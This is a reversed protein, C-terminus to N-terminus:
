RVLNFTFYIPMSYHQFYVRPTGGDIWGVTTVPVRSVYGFAIVFDGAHPVTPCPHVRVGVTYSTSTEELKELTIPLGFSSLSPIYYFAPSGVPRVAGDTPPEISAPLFERTGYVYIWGSAGLYVSIRRPISVTVSVRTLELTLAEEYAMGSFQINRVVVRYTGPTPTPSLVTSVGPGVSDWFRTPNYGGGGRPDRSLEAALQVGNVTYTLVESTSGDVMYYTWPGFVMVDVNSAYAPKGHTPWTVRLGLARTGTPVYVKFVRWDGSEYRWTYDFAGRLYTNRYPTLETRPILRFTPTYYTMNVPVFYSVPVLYRLGRATEEVVVYGSYFGPNVGTAVVTFRALGRSTLTSPSVTVDRWTTLAYTLVRARIPLSGRFTAGSVGIRVVLAKTMGETSIGMLRATLYEIEEIQKALNGIQIRVYNARRIDYYIRGTETWSFAGDRNTDIWYALELVTTPILVSFTGTRGGSEFHEFPFTVEIEFLGAALLPRPDIALHGYVTAATVSLTVSEGVCSTIVTPEFRTLVLDCLPRVSTRSHTVAYARFTGAGEITVTRSELAGPRVHPIYIKPEYWTLAGLSSHTISGYTEALDATIDQPLSTSYVRPVSPDLVATVARYADVFGTGQSLQDFGMDYATNMLVTKLLHSPMRSGHVSKYASVVLAGVGAVMPTAQSTGSFLAHTVTGRLTRAGLAEWTRGVAWAFAGVAVVDPKVVGLETPGRNSWSVVQRSAGPVTYGYIPRYAFETAAGVGISFTSSAPSAITGWGPGGNGVAVFHPVGTVTTTYDFVISSPDMGSAWGWLAWGSTGYSNSTADVRPTGTYAWEWAYGEFAIWPNTRLAPWLYRSGEGYPTAMDFGTYFYIATITTGFYLAPAAAIKAAPAQGSMSRVGYGTQAYYDRGAATTACFTGHNGYDYQLVVYSGYPDVGPWVMAVPEYEWLEYLLLADTRYGHGHPLPTVLERWAGGLEYFIAYAADYVYGALTGISFDRVGDGDLDRALVERGYRLPEEGAFSYDPATPAGPITVLCPSPALALRLLYLVTTTDVYVTDYYGDGDSDVVLVPATFRIATSVGGVSASVYYMMLGFRPTGFRPIDGVHWLYGSPWPVYASFSRCGSVSVWLGQSWKFVYYPPYFVYLGTPDVRVYGGGVEEAGVPTLVLGLSSVDFVLPLGSDDRAVAGLGLAPSGYDVGTDIIAISVGEGRIGYKLWVDIARTINVTYHYSGGSGGTSSLEGSAVVGLEAFARTSRIFVPDMRMDPLIALVGPLRSLADLDERTIVVNVLKYLHTPYSGLFGRVKGRLISTPASRELVLIARAVQANSNLVTFEGSPMLEFALASPDDVYAGFRWYSEEYMIHSVYATRLPNPAQSIRSAGAPLTAIAVLSLLVLPLVSKARLKNRM